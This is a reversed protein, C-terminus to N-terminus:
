TPCPARANRVQLETAVRQHRMIAIITIISLWFLNLETVETMILNCIISFGVAVVIQRQMPTAAKFRFIRWLTSFILIMFPVGGLIGLDCLIRAFGNHPNLALEQGNETRVLVLFFEDVGSILHRKEFGAWGLGLLPYEIFADLASVLGGWRELNSADRGGSIGTFYVFTAGAIATAAVLLATIFLYAGKRGPVRMMSFVAYGVCLIMFILGMRSKTLLMIAAFSLLIVIRWRLTQVLCLGFPLCIMIITATHNNGSFRAEGSIDFGFLYINIGIQVPLSLWLGLALTRIATPDSLAWRMIFLYSLWSITTRVTPTIAVDVPSYIFSLWLSILFAVFILELRKIQRDNLDYVQVFLSLALVIAPIYIFYLNIGLISAGFFYVLVVVHVNLSEPIGKFSTARPNNFDGTNNLM